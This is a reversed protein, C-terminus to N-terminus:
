RLGQGLRAQNGTFVARHAAGHGEILTSNLGFGALAEVRYASGLSYLNPPTSMEFTFGERVAPMEDSQIPNQSHIFHAIGNESTAPYEPMIFHDIVESVSIKFYDILSVIAEFETFM